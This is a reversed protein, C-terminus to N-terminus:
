NQKDNPYIWELLYNRLRTFRVLDELLEPMYRKLVFEVIVKGAERYDADHQVDIYEGEEIPVARIWQGGSLLKKGSARSILIKCQTEILEWRDPDVDSPCLGQSFYDVFRQKIAVLKGVLDKREFERDVLRKKRNAEASQELEELTPIDDLREM